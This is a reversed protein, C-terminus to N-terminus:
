PGRVPSTAYMFMDLPDDSSPHAPRTDEFGDEDEYTEREDAGFVDLDDSSMISPSWRHKEQRRDSASKAYLLGIPQLPQTRAPLSARAIKRSVKPQPTHVTTMNVLASSLISSFRRRPTCIQREDRTPMPEDDEEDEGETDSSARFRVVKKNERGRSRSRAPSEAGYHASPRKEHSVKAMPQGVHVRKVRKRVPRSDDWCDVMNERAWEDRSMGGRCRTEAEDALAVLRERWRHVEEGSSRKVAAGESSPREVERLVGSWLMAEAHVLGHRRLVEARATFAGAVRQLWDVPGLLDAFARDTFPMAIVPQFADQAPTIRRILSCIADLDSKSAHAHQAVLWEMALCLVDQPVTSGARCHLRMPRVLRLFDRVISYDNDDGLITTSTMSRRFCYRKALLLWGRLQTELAQTTADDRAFHKPDCIHSILGASLDLFAALSPRWIERALKDMARSTWVDSATDEDMVDLLAHVFTDHSRGASPATWRRLLDVLFVTHAPHLLSAPGARRPRVAQHLLLRLIDPAECALGHALTTDLLISLLTPHYPCQTLIIDLAQSRIAARRYPPPIAEYIEDREENWDHADEDDEPQYELGRGAVAACMDALTMVRAAPAEDDRTRTLVSNYADRVAYIKRSLERQECLSRDYYARSDPPPLVSLPPSSSTPRSSYTASVGCSRENAYAALSKCSTRLSRLSIESPAM